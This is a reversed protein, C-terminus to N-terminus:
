ASAIAMALADRMFESRTQNRSKAIRDAEERQSQPIKFAVTVLDEESLRPRGPPKIIWGITEGPVEGREFLQAMEEIQEDSIEVGNKTTYGMDM